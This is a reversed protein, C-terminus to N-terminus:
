GGFLKGWFRDKKNSREIAKALLATRAREKALSEPTALPWKFEGGCVDDVVARRDAIFRTYLANHLTTIDIPTGVAYNLHMPISPRDDAFDALMVVGDDPGWIRLIALGKMVENLLRKEVGSYYLESAPVPSFGVLKEWPRRWYVPDSLLSGGTEFLLEDGFDNATIACSVRKNGSPRDEDWVLWPLGGADHTM